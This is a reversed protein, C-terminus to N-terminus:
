GNLLNDVLISAIKPKPLPKDGCGEWQIITLRTLGWKEALEIQKLGAKERAAKLENGTM